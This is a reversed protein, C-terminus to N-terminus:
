SVDWERFLAFRFFIEEVPLRLCTLDVGEV